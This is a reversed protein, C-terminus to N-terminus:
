AIKHSRAYNKQASFQKFYEAFRDSREAATCGNKEIHKRKLEDDFAEGSAAADLGAIVVGCLDLFGDAVATAKQHHCDNVSRAAGCRIIGYGFRTDFRSAINWTLVFTDPQWSEGDFDVSLTIGQSGEIDVQIRRDRTMIENVSVSAGRQVALEIVHKAMAERDAKRRETWNLM